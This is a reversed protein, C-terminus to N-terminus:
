RVAELVSRMSKILDRVGREEELAATGARIVEEWASKVQMSRLVRIAEQAKDMEGRTKDREKQALDRVLLAQDRGATIEAVEARALCLSSRSHGSKVAEAKSRGDFDNEANDESSFSMDADKILGM